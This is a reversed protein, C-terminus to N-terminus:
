SRCCRIDASIIFSPSAVAQIPRGGSCGSIWWPNPFLAEDLPIETRSNVEFLHPKSIPIEDGPKLYPYSELKPQLQDHPSSEILFVKRETGPRTRMAVLRQSDPSWYVEPEPTEPERTDYEMEVAQKWQISVPTPITRIATM